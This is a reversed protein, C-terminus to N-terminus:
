PRCASRAFQNRFDIEILSRGDHPTYANAFMRTVRYGLTRPRSMRLRLQGRGEEQMVRLLDLEDITKRPLPIQSHLPMVKYTMCAPNARLRMIWEVLWDPLHPTILEGFLVRWLSRDQAAATRARRMCFRRM